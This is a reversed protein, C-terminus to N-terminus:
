EDVFGVAVGVGCRGEARVMARDVVVSSLFVGKASLQAESCLSVWCCFFDEVLVLGELLIGPIVLTEEMMVGM